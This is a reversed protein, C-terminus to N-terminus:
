ILDTVQACLFPMLYYFLLTLIPYINSIQFIPIFIVSQNNKMFCQIAIFFDESAILRVPKMQLQQHTVFPIHVFHITTMCAM